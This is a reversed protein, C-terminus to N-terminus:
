SSQQRQQHSSSAAARPPMALLCRRLQLQKWILRLLGRPRRTGALRAQLRTSLAWCVMKGRSCPKALLRVAGATASRCYAQFVSASCCRALLFLQLLWLRHLATNCLLNYSR